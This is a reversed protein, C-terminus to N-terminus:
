YKCHYLVTLNFNPLFPHPLQRWASENNIRQGLNMLLYIQFFKNHGKPGALFVLITM